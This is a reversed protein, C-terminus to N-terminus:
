FAGAAGTCRSAERGAAAELRCPPPLCADACLPPVGSSPRDNPQRDGTRTRRRGDVVPESASVLRDVASAGSCAGDNGRVAASGAVAASCCHSPLSVGASPPLITSASLLSMVAAGDGPDSDQLGCTLMPLTGAAATLTNEHPAELWADGNGGLTVFGGFTAFRFPLLLSTGAHPPMVGAADSCSGAGAELTNLHSVASCVIGAECAAETAGDACRSPLLRSTGPPLLAAAAVDRFGAAAALTNVHPGESFTDGCLGKCGDEAASRCPLPVPAGAPLSLLRSAAGRSTCAPSGCTLLPLTVAATALTKVASRVWFAASNGGGELLREVAAFCRPRALSAGASLLPM